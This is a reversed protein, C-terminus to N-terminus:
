YNLLNDNLIVAWVGKSGLGRIQGAESVLADNESNVGPHRHRRWYPLGNVLKIAMSHGMTILFSLLNGDIAMFLLEHGHIAM